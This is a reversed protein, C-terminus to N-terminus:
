FFSLLMDARQLEAHDPGLIKNLEERLVVAEDSNAKGADILAFYGDLKGQTDRSIYRVDMQQLIYNADRGNQPPFDYIQRDALSYIKCDAVQSIVLPAHTTVIFQLEPFAKRLDNLVHVQWSPHLHLDVEDILVVGKTYLPAQANLHPNLLCCRFAIEMVMALTCRVGDSLLAYPIVTGDEYEIVLQNEKLMYRLTKCDVCKKVAANVAELWVSTHGKQLEDLTETYYLDLFFKSNTTADLSNFYGRLRSGNPEIKTERREKKYRDTSFYAILPINYPKNERISGQMQKSAEMMEKAERYLTKGGWTEVSRKWKVEVTQGYADDFRDMEALANVVTPIQPELNSLRIDDNVIGPINLKDDYKDLGLYLSGVLVRLAELISTKGTGNIGMLINMSPHFEMDQETFCKFNSIDIRKLRM